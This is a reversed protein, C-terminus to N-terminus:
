QRSTEKKRELVATYAKAAKRVGLVNHIAMFALVGVLVHMYTM